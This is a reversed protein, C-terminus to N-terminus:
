EDAAEQGPCANKWYLCLECQRGPRPPFDGSAGARRFQALAALVTRKAGADTEVEIARNEDLLFIFAKVPQAVGLVNLAISYIRLQLRYEGLLDAGPHGTKYDVLTVGTSDEFWLDISGRILTADLEFLFDYEREVRRAQAARRGLESDRFVRALQLARPSPSALVEGALLAHVESGLEMGGGAPRTEEPQADPAAGLENPRATWGIERALWFRRPCLDFRALDTATVAPQAHFTEPLPDRWEVAASESTSRQRAIEPIGRRRVVSVGTCEIALDPEDPWQIEWASEIQDPWPSRGGHERWSLLLHSKARTMAVYLLRDSEEKEAANRRSPNLIFAFDKVADLGTTDRWRAGLGNERTFNLSGKDSGAGREMGVIAVLPFELGKSKHISLIQVAGTSETQPANPESSSALSAIVELWYSCDAPHTSELDRLLDLFKEFNAQGRPNLRTFYGTEAAFRSLILGAPLQGRLRRMAQIRAFPEPPPFTGQRKDLFIEEDALGFFPSRLLGFVAPQHSVSDMVRLWNILDVIEPEEFFNRGRAIVCPIGFREFAAEILDFPAKTRALVACDSWRLPRPPDDVTLTQRLESLRSALWLAESEPQEDDEDIRQIQISPLPKEPFSKEPPILRHTTLGPAVGSNALLEVASLLEPRSRYNCELRDIQGGREEVERQYGAFLSPDADRFGYIAQNADGVAFFSTPTRLCRVIDWQIPNTDQLEDMLIAKFRQRLSEQVGSQSTLLALAQEELDSFDLGSLLRKRRTYEAELDCLLRALAARHAAHQTWILLPVAELALDRAAKLEDQGPMKRGGPLKYESLMTVWEDRPLSAFAEIFGRVLDLRRRQADTAPFALAGASERLLDVARAAYDPLLPALDPQGALARAAGGFMRLATLIEALDGAPRESSWADILDRFGAPQDTAMRDLVARVAADLEVRSQRDDLVTFEPDIGAEVAHERLISQCLGHITSVPAREIKQRLASDDEFRRVLRSKLERAAKETFTIALISEPDLGKAILWAFREVLVRTKGSGPGAVCCADQGSRVVAQQQEGSLTM